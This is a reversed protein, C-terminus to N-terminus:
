KINKSLLLTKVLFVLKKKAQVRPTYSLSRAAEWVREKTAISASFTEDHSLIRSVTAYSVGALQAVDKITSM